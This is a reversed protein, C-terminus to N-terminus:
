DCSTGTSWLVQNDANLIAVECPGDFALRRGGNGGHENDATDSAWLSTGSANYVVLNGDGQFCLQAGPDSTPYNTRTAWPATGQTDYLVLNGDGQWALHWDDTSRLVYGTDSSAALCSTLNPNEQTSLKNPFAIATGSYALMVANSTSVPPGCDAATPALADYVTNGAAFTGGAGGGSGAAASGGCSSGSGGGGYGGGGGGGYNYTGGGGGTGLASDATVLSGGTTWGQDGAWGGIGASGSPGGSGGSGANGAGNGNGGGGATCTKQWNCGGGQNECGAQGGDTGAVSAPSGPLASANACAASARGGYGGGVAAGVDKAGDGGGGGGGAILYVQDGPTATKRQATSLATLPTKALITSSGGASSGGSDAHGLYAYLGPLAKLDSGEVVTLAFGGAGGAGGYYKEPWVEHTQGSAGPAGWAMLWVSENDDLAAEAWGALDLVIASQQQGANLTCTTYGALVGSGTDPHM